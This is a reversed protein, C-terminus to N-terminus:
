GCFDAHRALSDGLELFSDRRRRIRCQFTDRSHQVERYREEILRFQRRSRLAAREKEAGIQAYRLLDFFCTAILQFPRVFDLLLQFGVDAKNRLLQRDRVAVIAVKRQVFHFFDCHIDAVLPAHVIVRNAVQNPQQLVVTDDNRLKRATLLTLESADVRQRAPFVPCGVNKILGCFLTGHPNTEADQM